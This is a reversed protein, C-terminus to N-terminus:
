LLRDRQAAEASTEPFQRYLRGDILAGGKGNRPPDRLEAEARGHLRTLPNSAYVGWQKIFIPIGLRRCDALIDEGWGPGVPRASNGSEGGFIIWDPLPRADPLRLGGIAPEYSVFKIRAPVAALIPWRQDFYEQSEMTAGLWVHPWGEGWDAPLMKRINQPRKTLLQWDLAPTERILTWLDARDRPEWQNDFVDALSACFVRQRRGRTRLFRPADANWERPKKWNAASTRRRPNNGWKVLGSRLSWAEAYCHDCGPSINTCGVVPNFTHDTWEIRTMEGM